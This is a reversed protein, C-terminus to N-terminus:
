QDSLTKGAEENDDDSRQTKEAAVIEWPSEKHFLPDQTNGRRAENTREQFIIDKDTKNKNYQMMLTNLQTEAYEQDAIENPNGSFPIWCGVNAVYINFSPDKKQLVTCRHKAEEMTDYVGRIKLGRITTRFEQMQHFEKEITNGENDKFFKYQEDLEKADFIYRQNDRIAEIVDKEDPFKIKLNDLLTNMDKSFNTLFRSFYFVEKQMLVDEPSVFSLCVFNQNRIPDDVELYDKEKTSVLSEM